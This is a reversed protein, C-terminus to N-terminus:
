ASPLGDQEERYQEGHAIAETIGQLRNILSGLMDQDIVMRSEGWGILVEGRAHDHEVALREPRPGRVTYRQGQRIEMRSM